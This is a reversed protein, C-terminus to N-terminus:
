GPSPDGMWRNGKLDQPPGMLARLDPLVQWELWGPGAASWLDIMRGAVTASCTHMEVLMESSLATEALEGEAGSAVEAGARWAAMVAGFSGLGEEM